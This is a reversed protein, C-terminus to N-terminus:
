GSTILSGRVTLLRLLAANDYAFTVNAFSVNIDNIVHPFTNLKKILEDELYNEFQM